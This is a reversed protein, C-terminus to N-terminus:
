RRGENGKRDDMKKQRQVLPPAKKIRDGPSRVAKQQM